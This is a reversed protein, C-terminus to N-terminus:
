SNSGFKKIRYFTIIIYGFCFIFHILVVVCHLSFVVIGFNSDINERIILSHSFKSHVIPKDTIRDFSEKLPLYQNLTLYKM